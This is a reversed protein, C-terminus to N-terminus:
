KGKRAADLAKRFAQRAALTRKHHDLPLKGDPEIYYKSLHTGAIHYRSLPSKRLLRRLYDLLGM